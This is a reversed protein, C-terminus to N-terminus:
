AILGSSQDGLNIMSAIYPLLKLFLDGANINCQFDSVSKEASFIVVLSLTTISM